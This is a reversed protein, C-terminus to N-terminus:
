RPVEGNNLTFLRLAKLIAERDAAHSTKFFDEEETAFWVQLSDGALHVMTVLALNIYIQGNPLYVFQAASM